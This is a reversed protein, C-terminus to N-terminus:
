LDYCTKSLDIEKERLLAEAVQNKSLADWVGDSAVVLYRHASTLKHEVVDPLCTLYPGKFTGPGQYHQEKKLYYDGITRTPQLRGKLYYSGGEETVIEEDAEAWQKRLRERESRSNVSLRDNAKVSRMGQVDSLLFIAQSDGSNALYVSDNHVVATIACSGVSRIRKNGM